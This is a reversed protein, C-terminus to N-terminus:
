KSRGLSWKVGVVANLLPSPYGYIEEYRQNLANRLNVYATVGSKVRVNVNIGINQYGPNVYFGGSAGYSPEVDLTNGRFYGIINVDVRGKHGTVVLSGSQRPRRALLQGPTYYSQALGTGNLSLVQAQLWTYSGMVSLWGAPRVRVSTEVGETRANNLNDTSFQSLKALSGGLSVILDKYRNHFWTADLAVKGGLLRQEVGIDYSLSREPQLAPNNTFALDSGGPPRIGTGFSAHARTEPKVFYVGSIKPSAQSYNTAPFDPRPPYGNKYGTIFPNEFFDGRVGANIFLKNWFEFRNEWYLGQHNRRLLFRGLNSTIYTNRDEEREYVFGGAMIWHRTVSFTERAEGNVRLDKNFSTGYPSKYPSNNLYFGAFIDQRFRDTVDAQYHAGYTSSYNRSRSVTDLGSFYHKPNSGYPGPEGVENWDYDGFAFLNQKNWRRNVALYVGQNTYDSNRVSGDNSFHSASASIGWGQWTGSGSVAYRQDAHTGGEALVDVALGEAPTRTIFNVASAIAYSGYVASQPGRAVDIEQLSDSPVHAFDFLGGYYFSSVSIGNLQVLNYKSEGGRAFLSMVTGVGGSQAIVVGPVERLLESATAENRERIEGATIVTVSGGQLNAPADIASGTVRISDTLPALALEITQERSAVTKTAFGPATVRLEVGEPTQMAFKGAADTVQETVVGLRNVAAVQAGAIPRKSPDLVVGYVEAAHLSISISIACALLTASTNRRRM